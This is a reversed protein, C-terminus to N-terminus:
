ELLYSLHVYFYYYMISESVIENVNEESESEISNSSKHTSENPSMNNTQSTANNLATKTFGESIDYAQFVSSGLKVNDEQIHLTVTYNKGLLNKMVPPIDGPETIQENYNPFFYKFTQM